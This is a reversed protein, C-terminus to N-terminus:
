KIIEKFKIGLNRFGIYFIFFKDRVVGDEKVKVGMGM